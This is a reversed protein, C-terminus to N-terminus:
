PQRFKIELLETRCDMHCYTYKKQCVGQNQLQEPHQGGKAMASARATHVKLVRNALPAKLRRFSRLQMWTRLYCWPCSVPLFNPESDVAKMSHWVRCLGFGSLSEGLIGCIGSM